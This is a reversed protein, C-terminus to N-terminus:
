DNITFEGGAELMAALAIAGMQQALTPADDTIPPDCQMKLNITENETDSLVITITAM